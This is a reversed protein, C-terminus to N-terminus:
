ICCFCSKKSSKNYINIMNDIIDSILNSEILIKLSEYIYEPIIDDDTGIIGDDGKAIEELTNIVYQKKENGYLNGFKEVEEILLTLLQISNLITIKKDGILSKIRDYLIKNPLKSKSIINSTNM